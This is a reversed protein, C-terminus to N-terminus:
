PGSWLRVRPRGKPKRCRELGKFLRPWRLLFWAGGGLAVTELTGADILENAGLILWRRFAGTIEDALLETDIEAEKEPAESFYPM